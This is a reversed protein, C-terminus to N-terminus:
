RPQYHPEFEGDGIFASGESTPLDLGVADGNLFEDFFGELFDGFFRDTEVTGSAGVRADVGEALDSVEVGGSVERHVGGVPNGREVGFERGGDTDEIAFFHGVVKVGAEGGLGFGIGVM